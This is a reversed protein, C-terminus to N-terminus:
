ITRWAYNSNDLWPPHSQCPMYCSHPSSSHMYSKPPFAPLFSVVLTFCTALVWRTSLMDALFSQSLRFVSLHFSVVHTMAMSVPADTVIALSSMVAHSGLFSSVLGYMRCMAEPSVMGMKFSVNISNVSPCHGSIVQTNTGLIVLLNMKPSSSPRAMAWATLRLSGVTAARTRDWTLDHPIQPSCLPVPAPKRWTSQNGRGIRMGDVAGYDDIMRPQYLLGVTALTGLPSLRVGGLSVLFFSPSYTMCMWLADM